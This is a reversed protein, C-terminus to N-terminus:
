FAQAVGVEAIDFDAVCRAWIEGNVACMFVCFTVAETTMWDIPDFQTGDQELMFDPQRM